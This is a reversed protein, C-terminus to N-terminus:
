KKYHGCLYDEHMNEQKIFEEIRKLMTQTIPYEYREVQGVYSPSVGIDKAFEYQSKNYRKRLIVLREVDDMIQIDKFSRIEM